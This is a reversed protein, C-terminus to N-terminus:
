CIYYDGQRWQGLFLLRLKVLYTIAGKEVILEQSEVWSQVRQNIVLKVFIVGEPVLWVQGSKMSDLLRTHISHVREFDSVLFDFCSLSIFLVRELMM